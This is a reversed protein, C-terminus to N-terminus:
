IYEEKSQKELDPADLDLGRPCFDLWTKQGGLLFHSGLPLVSFRAPNRGELFDKDKIFLSFQCSLKPGESCCQVTLTVVM